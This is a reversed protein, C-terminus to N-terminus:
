QMVPGRAQPNPRLRKISARGERPSATPFLSYVQAWSRESSKEAAETRPPATTGVRCLQDLCGSHPFHLDDGGFPMEAATGPLLAFFIPARLTGNWDWGLHAVCSDMLFPM